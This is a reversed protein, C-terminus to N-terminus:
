NNPKLKIRNAASSDADKGRAKLPNGIYETTAALQAVEITAALASCALNTLVYKQIKQNRAALITGVKSSLDSGDQIAGVKVTRRLKQIANLPPQREVAKEQSLSFGTVM